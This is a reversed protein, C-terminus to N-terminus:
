AKVESINQNLLSLADKFEKEINVIAEDLKKVFSNEEFTGRVAIFDDEPRGDIGFGTRSEDSFEKMADTKVMNMLKKSAKLWNELLKQIFSAELEDAKEGTMREFNGVFWNWSDGSYANYIENLHSRLGKYDQINGSSIHSTLKDIRDKGALLGSIDLWEANGFRGESNVLKGPDKGKSASLAKILTDGIYKDLVLAYYRRCTKLVLRKITLGKYLIFDQSKDTTESLNKLIDLANLVKQITYPSLVDFHILDLKDDNKRKDRAPWKEGDRMTGVTFYNMGPMLVSKGGSENVYSFPFDRSDFNAYHKGIVATFAGVRSPWLLYSFSGTKCGREMIGQHLPGLKYMHNSQNTGSGANYFSAMCAIMLTSRHHTVSYPGGFFSVAESHFAENNCFFVCHESSFQKGMKAAEGVLTEALMAGDKVEAGQQIIFNHATVGRGVTTPAQESSCITGNVLSLPGEIRAYPDICVNKIEGAGFVRTGKGIVAREKSISKIHNAVIKDIGDQLQKNERYLCQLYAIQSGTYRTIKIERGGGENLASVKTGNGFNSEGDCAITGTDEILVDDEIILNSLWGGMNSISVNNGLEVNNLRANHIGSKWPLTSSSYPNKGFSGLKIQGQFETQKVLDTNFDETVRVHDWNDSSCGQSILKEVEEFDLNRYNENM